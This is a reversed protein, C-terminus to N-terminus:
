STSLQTLLDEVTEGRGLQYHYDWDEASILERALSWTQQQEEQQYPNQMANRERM